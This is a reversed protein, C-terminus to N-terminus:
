RHRRCATFYAGVMRMVLLVSSLMLNVLGQSACCPFITEGMLLKFITHHGHRYLSHAVLSVQLM